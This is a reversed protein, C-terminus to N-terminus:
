PAGTEMPHGGAAWASTGGSVSRADLGAADLLTAAQMSRGGSQCIVYVPQDSPLEHLRVPVVGLPMLQAGPVHGARYEDGERVDLVTAGDDKAQRLDDVSVETIM